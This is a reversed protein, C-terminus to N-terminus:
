ARLRDAEFLHEIDFDRAPRQEVAFRAVAEIDVEVRSQPRQGPLRRPRIM